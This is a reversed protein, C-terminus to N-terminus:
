QNLEENLEDVAAKYNAVTIEKNCIGDLFNGMATWYNNMKSYYPQLVSCNEMTYIEAQVLENDLFTNDNLVATSVPITGNAEYRAIQSEPSALFAAFDMCVTQKPTGDVTAPNVGVCKTGSMATMQYTEGNYTFTPLPAVGLNDGYYAKLTEYDWSGTFVANVEGNIMKNIDLGGIVSNDNNIIGLMKKAADYGKSGEFDFGSAYNLGDEGFLTCGTGLFFCGGTWEYYIPIDVRGKSLMDELSKVDKENFVTKDYYLYWTNGQIPFGYLEGDSYTVSNEAVDCNNARVQSAYYSGLPTLANADMLKGLYDSPYMYVDPSGEGKVINYAADGEGIKQNVWSIEYEPYQAAFQAQMNELWNNDELQDDEPAWVTITVKQKGATMPSSIGNSLITFFMIVCLVGCVFRLFGGKKPQYPATRVGALADPDLATGCGLCFKGSENRPKGCNPCLNQNGASARASAAKPATKPMTAGCSGCFLANDAVPQGCKPCDRM